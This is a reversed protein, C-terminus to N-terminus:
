LSELFRLLAARDGARAAVFADRSARAEGDHWLVAEEANRARGDHLLRTHGNVTHLLGIGWLPPTRWESGSAEHDPRGDALEPGMDHLLLDTFPRIVQHALEPLSEFAGTELSPRHCTACGLEEFMDEGRLVQPEDLDRRAPVALLRSYLVVDALRAEPIEPSGGSPAAACELEVATCDEAPNVPSTIGMDGLFAGAVQQRISPQNAKWGFRGVTTGSREPNPLHSVRGSIGDGDADFPDALGVLTDETVAELLGLGIVQPAVRPSIMTGALM